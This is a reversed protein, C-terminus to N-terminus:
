SRKRTLAVVPIRRKTAAQYSTYPPYIGVMKEWLRTREAGEVVRIDAKFREAKVQVDAENSAMLNLYWAPHFDHGAKSAIIILDDGDEGFILPLVLENGTKRGITRLILTKVIGAGGVVTSDWLYGDEGDTELYRRLHEHIPDTIEKPFGDLKM